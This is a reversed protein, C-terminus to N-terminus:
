MTMRNLFFSCFLWTLLKVKVDGREYATTHSHGYLGGVFSSTFVGGRDREVDGRLLLLRQSVQADVLIQRNRMQNPSHHHLFQLLRLGIAVSTSCTADPKTSTWPNRSLPTQAVPAGERRVIALQVFLPRM